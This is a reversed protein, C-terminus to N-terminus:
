RIQCCQAGNIQIKKWSIEDWIKFSGIKTWFRFNYQSSWTHAVIMKFYKIICIQCSVATHSALGIHKWLLRIHEKLTTKYVIRTKDHLFPKLGRLARLANLDDRRRHRRDTHNAWFIRLEKRTWGGMWNIQSYDGLMATKMVMYPPSCSPPLARCFHSCWYWSFSVPENSATTYFCALM